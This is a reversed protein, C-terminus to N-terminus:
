REVFLTVKGTKTAGGQAITVTLTGVSLPPAYDTLASGTLGATAARLYYIGSAAPNTLTAVNITLGAFSSDVQVDVGASCTGQDWLMAYVKGIVEAPATVTAAGSGNTTFPLEITSIMIM